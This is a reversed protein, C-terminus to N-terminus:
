RAEDSKEERRVPKVVQKQMRQMQTRLKGQVVKALVHDKDVFRIASGYSLLRIAM